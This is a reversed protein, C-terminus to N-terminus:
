PLPGPGVGARWRRMRVGQVKRRARDHAHRHGRGQRTPPVPDKEATAATGQRGRKPPHAARLRQGPKWRPRAAQSRSRGPMFGLLDPPRTTFPWRMGRVADLSPGAPGVTSVGGLLLRPRRGPARSLWTGQMRSASLAQEARGPAAGRVAGGVVAPIRESGSGERRGFAGGAGQTHRLPPVAMPWRCAAPQEGHADCRMTGRVRRMPGGSSHAASGKRVERVEVGEPEKAKGGISTPAPRLRRRM